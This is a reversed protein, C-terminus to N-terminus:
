ILLFMLATASFPKEVSFDASCSVPGNPRDVSHLRLGQCVVFGRLVSRARHFLRIRSNPDPPGPCRM